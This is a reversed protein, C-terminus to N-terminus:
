LELIAFDIKGDQLYLLLNETNKVVMSIDILPYDSLLTKLLRSMTYEGIILTTSFKLSTNEGKIALMTKIKDSSTKMAVYFEYLIRGERTLALTKESYNFLKVGYSEEM